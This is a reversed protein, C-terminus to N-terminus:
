LLSADTGKLNLFNIKNNINERSLLWPLIELGSFIQFDPLYIFSRTTTFPFYIQCVGDDVRRHCTDPRYQHSLFIILLIVILSSFQYHNPEHGALTQTLRECVSAMSVKGEWVVIGNDYKSIM